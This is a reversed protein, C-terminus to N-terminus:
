DFGEESIDEDNEVEEDWDPEYPPGEGLKPTIAQKSGPYPPECHCLSEPCGETNLTIPAAVQM